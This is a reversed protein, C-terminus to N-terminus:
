NPAASRGASLTALVRGGSSAASELLPTYVLLTHVSSRSIDTASIGMASIGM